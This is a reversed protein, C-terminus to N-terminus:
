SRDFKRMFKILKIYPLPLKFVSKLFLSKSGCNLFETVFTKPRVVYFILSHMAVLSHTNINLFSFKKFENVTNLSPQNILKDYAATSSHATLDLNLSKRLKMFNKLFELAAAQLKLIEKANQKTQEPHAQVCYYKGNEDMNYSLASGDTSLFFLEFLDPSSMIEDQIDVNNTNDFLYAVSNMSSENKKDKKGIYFGEISNLPYIKQLHHQITGHWGVDCVGIRGSFDLNNLYGRINKEQLKSIRNIEPKIINFVTQKENPILNKVLKQCNIKSIRTVKKVLSGPLGISLMMKQLTFQSKSVTIMSLLEDFNKARYLLPLATAKRSVKILTTIMSQNNVIDFAAKLFAGERALFFLKNIDSKKAKNKLWLSYGYLIPGVVEYGIQEYFNYNENINNKIFSNLVNYRYDLNSREYKLYKKNFFLTNKENIKILAANIKRQKPSLYDGKQADGVHIINQPKLKEKKLIFDFLEGSAKSKNYVNSVYLSKWNKYGASLLISTIVKEPLYMDSVILITKNNNLCWQYVKKMKPNEQCLIKELSIEKEKLWIRQEDTINRFESYIDTLNVDKGSNFKNANVEALKRMKYIPLDQNFKKNFQDQLLLFVDESCNVNRKILTDFIDFSVVDCDSKKIISILEDTKVANIDSFIERLAKKM